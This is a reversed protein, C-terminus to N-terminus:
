SCVLLEICDACQQLFIILLIANLANPINQKETMHKPTHVRKTPTNAEHPSRSLTNPKAHNIPHIVNPSAIAIAHTYLPPLLM